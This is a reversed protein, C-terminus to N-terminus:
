DIESDKEEVVTRFAEIASMGGVVARPELDVQETRQQADDCACRCNQKIGAWINCTLTSPILSQIQNKSESQEKQAYLRACKM